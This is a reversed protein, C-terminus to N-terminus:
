PIVLRVVVLGSQAHRFRFLAGPLFDPSSPTLM